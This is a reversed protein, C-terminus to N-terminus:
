SLHRRIRPPTYRQTHYRLILTDNQMEREDDTKRKKRLRLVTM